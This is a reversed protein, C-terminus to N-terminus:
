FKFQTTGNKQRSQMEQEICGSLIVYSGKSGARAVQDCWDRMKTPVEAWATKLQDYADQEQALCGDKIVESSGGGAAAVEECWGVPDYRPVNEASAIAPAAIALAVALIHIRM